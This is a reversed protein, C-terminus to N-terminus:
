RPGGSETGPSNKCKFWKFFAIRTDSSNYHPADARITFNLGKDKAYIEFAIGESGRMNTNECGMM